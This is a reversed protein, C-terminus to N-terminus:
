DDSAHLVGGGRGLVWFGMGTTSVCPLVEVCSIVHSSSSSSQREWNPSLTSSGESALWLFFFVPRLSEMFYHNNLPSGSLRTPPKLRSSFHKDFHIMEEFLPSFLFHKFGGGLLRNYDWCLETTFDKIYGLCGHSKENSWQQFVPGLRSGIM